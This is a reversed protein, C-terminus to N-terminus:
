PSFSRNLININMGNQVRRKKIPLQDNEPQLPMDHRGQQFQSQVDESAEADQRQSAFLGNSVSLPLDSTINNSLNVNSPNSQISKSELNEEGDETMPPIPTNIYSYTISSTPSNPLKPTQLAQDPTPTQFGCPSDLRNTINYSSNDLM